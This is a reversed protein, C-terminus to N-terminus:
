LGKSELVISVLAVGTKLRLGQLEDVYHSNGPEAGTDQQFFHLSKGAQRNLARGIMCM